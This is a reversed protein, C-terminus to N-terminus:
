AARRKLKHLNAAVKGNRVKVSVSYGRFELTQSDEKIKVEDFEVGLLEGTPSFWGVGRGKIAEVAVGYPGPFWYVSLPGSGEFHRFSIEPRKM